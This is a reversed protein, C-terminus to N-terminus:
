RVTQFPDKKLARSVGAGLASMSFPKQLFTVDDQLVDHRQIVEDTYGSMFLCRLGPILVSLRAALDRGNMGPMVVDTLLLQIGGAHRGALRIAEDPSGASLVTYGHRELMKRTLRLISPEDEVLLVTAGGAPEALDQAEVAPETMLAARRPLYVSFITGEGPSSKVTIHGGNQRVIGHITALGLGTGRGVEKTTFFPEFLHARTEEDMGCGDDRVSLVVHAGCAADPHAAVYAEDLVCTATEVTIRGVDIIADRANVCLNTLIQDIQTPDMWLTGLGTGPVWVLELNEGILRRLMRILREVTQNLDIVQLTVAQRRAFALLQGTLAAARDAAWRVEELNAM